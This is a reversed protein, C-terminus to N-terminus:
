SAGLFYDPLAAFAANGRDKDSLVANAPAVPWPIDLAPDDFAIGRECARDYYATMKYLVECDPELTCFGHAFGVPVWLQDGNESSLVASAHRGYTPSGRRIDVTVDFIAGRVCRVLKGQASPPAQFHLGRVTGEARSFSQNEQVFPGALGIDAFRAAQFTESLHGRNDAFRDPTILLVDPISLAQVRM